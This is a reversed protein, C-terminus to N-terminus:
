DAEPNRVFGVPGKAETIDTINDESDAVLELIDAESLRKRGFELSVAHSFEIFM